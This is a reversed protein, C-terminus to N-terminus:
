RGGKSRMGQYADFTARLMTFKGGKEAIADIQALLDADTHAADYIAYYAPSAECLLYTNQMYNLM